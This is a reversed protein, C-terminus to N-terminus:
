RSYWQHLLSWKQTVLWHLQCWFALEPIGWSHNKQPWQYPQPSSSSSSPLGLEGMGQKSLKSGGHFCCCAGFCTRSSCIHFGNKSFCDLKLSWFSLSQKICSSSSCVPFKYSFFSHSVALNIVKEFTPLCYNKSVPFWLFNLPKNQCKTLLWECKKVALKEKTIYIFFNSQDFYVTPELVLVLM